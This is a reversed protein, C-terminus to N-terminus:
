QLPIEIMTVSAAPFKHTYGPQLPETQLVPKVREPEEEDNEILINDAAVTTVKATGEKVGIDAFDLTALLSKTLNRNVCLLVLSRGNESEAAVLDLYPVDAIEPLRNIGRTVSYTPTSSEVKLLTHPHATAYARLVWYAPAGFVQGRKRWIGGFEIIGTMNSIPIIDSNRLVMNLFGAAFLAGGMNAFNPATHSNSVMLWETFATNVRDRHPSQQIQDHIAHMQKELGIPLALSALARFEASPRRLQVDDTVVFHTSLFDFTGPPNTLQVANWETFHDADAGTDIFRARPDIKHVAESVSRTVEAVRGQTPYGVQFDGWLENGLEWLLGGKHDGWHQNVYRVWEAAKQPTDTGLNLAIQPQANILHCFTLFEDTGFTNYEPIGWSVNIKSVRKDRPGIGDHWDYASTFNGGFRVLPSNLDRAMAIMDPDMGEINDAPTLSAQDLLVRADDGLAIVFDAPELAAVQGEKLTLQFSYKTWTTAGADLDATTLILDPHGHVRISVSVKAPGRVHKLWVSGTYSLERQVPLYVMQRIGTERNPMSMVLLSRSSNAADGWIPLYRAGQAEDLPEWPLPIGLESARRLEPRARLMNVVNGASWLGDEFSPNEIVDAWLGGYTSHGIPELFSGYVSNPITSTKAPRTIRIQIPTQSPSTTDTIQAQLRPSVFVVPLVIIALARFHFVARSM